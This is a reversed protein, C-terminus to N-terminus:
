HVLQFALVGAFPQIRPATDARLVGSLSLLRELVADDGRAALRLTVAGDALSEVQVAELVSLNELYRMLRGYDDVSQVGSVMIRAARTGGLTAFEAAYFDALSDLGDRVAGGVVVRQRGGDVLSWQVAIGFDTVRAKGILWSDAGYRASAAEIRDSFGGWIDAFGIANLDELDLLPLTIPLGRESAAARLEQRLQELLESMAPTAGVDVPDASLIAREGALGDLALWILTLPREPGWIPRNLETLAREVARGNFRVLLQDTTEFGVADVYDAAREVLGALEPDWGADRRGTVRTLLQGMALRVGEARPDEAEPSPTVIVAYLDAFTAARLVSAPVAALLCWVVTLMGARALRKAYAAASM